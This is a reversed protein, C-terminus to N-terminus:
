WAFSVDQYVFRWALIKVDAGIYTEENAPKEPYIDEEPRYVPTGLGSLATINLAYIHNRVIGYAGKSETDTATKLSGLHRIDMYYYTNGNQWLKAHGCDSALRSNVAAYTAPQAEETNEIYYDSLQESDFREGDPGTGKIAAYVWYRGDVTPSAKGAETASLLVLDNHDIKVLATGARKYIGAKDAMAVKLGEVTYQFSGYDALTLATGSEDVLQAVIILQTPYSCASEADEAANEQLYLYSNSTEDETKGDGFNKAASKHENFSKFQYNSGDSKPAILDPNIAWFSRYGSPFNWSEGSSAGFIETDSWTEDIHKVLYSKNVAQTIDWGLFRVYIKGPTLDKDTLTNIRVGTDYTNKAIGTGEVQKLGCTLTAKANVREVCITVPHAEALSAEPFIHGFVPVAEMKNGAEDVYVSSSMVFYSEEGAVSYDDAIDNMAATADISGIVPMPDPPNVVAIIQFPLEDGQKTNIVLQAAIIKEINPADGPAVPDSTEVSPWDLYNVMTNTSIDRKVDAAEGNEKFFYFRVSQVENEHSNGPIYTDNDARTGGAGNSEGTSLLNVSLYSVTVPIEINDEDPPPIEGSCSAFSLLLAICSLYILKTIRM